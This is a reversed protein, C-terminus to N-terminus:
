EKYQWRDDELESLMVGNLEDLEYYTDIVDGDSDVSRITNGEVALEYIAREVSVDKWENIPKVRWDGAVESGSLSTLDSTTYYTDVVDGDRDISQITRGNALEVVAQNFNLM